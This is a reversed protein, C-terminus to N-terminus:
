ETEKVLNDITVEEGQQVIEYGGHEDRLIEYGYIGDGNDSLYSFQVILRNSDNTRIMTHTEIIELKDYESFANAFENQALIIANGYDESLVETKTEDDTSKASCAVLVSLVGFLAMVISLKKM